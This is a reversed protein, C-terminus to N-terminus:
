IALGWAHHNDTSAPIKGTVYTFTQGVLTYDGGGGSLMQGNQMLLLLFPARTLAFTANSGNKVGAPTEDLVYIPGQYGGVSVVGNSVTPVAAEEEPADLLGQQSEQLERLMQNLMAAQQRSTQVGRRLASVTAPDSGLGALAKVLLDWPGVLDLSIPYRSMLRVSTAM